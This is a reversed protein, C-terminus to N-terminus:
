SGDWEATVGTIGTGDGIFKSASITGSSATIHGSVNIGKFDDGAIDLSTGNDTLTTDGDDFNIVAGQALFLDSWANTGSGLAIGDNSTPRFIDQVLTIENGNKVRFVITDDSSFDILNHADRGIKLDDNLLSSITTQTPNVAVNDASMSIGGGGVVNFTASQGLDVEGGGTLGDGATYTVSDATLKTISIEGADIETVM